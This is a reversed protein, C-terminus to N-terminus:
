DEKINNLALASNGVALIAAVVNLILTGEETTFLGYGILLPVLAVSIGYIYRRINANLNM